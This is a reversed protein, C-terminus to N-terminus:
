LPLYLVIDAWEASSTCECLLLLDEIAQGISLSQPVIFVGPMPQGAEIRQKAYRPMTRHDHTVLIRGEAAAWTLVQFDNAGLLGVDQIRIIDIKPNKRLLGRVIDSILNEDAALTLM